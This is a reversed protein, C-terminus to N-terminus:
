PRTVRLRMFRKTVSSLSQTDDVKVTGPASGSHTYLSTWTGNLDSTAEVVYTVDAATGTFTYSLYNSGEVTQVQLILGASAATAPLNPNLGLAYKLLNAMGDNAASANDARNGTADTTGFHTMRWTDIGSAAVISATTQAYTTVAGDNATLRLTYAGAQNFNATTTAAAANGFAANGLGASKSWGLVLSSGAPNGDDIVSGSLPLLEGTNGAIATGASVVPGMNAPTAAALDQIETLDLARNYIRAEDITGFFNWADNSGIKLPATNNRPVSTPTITSFKDASGNVYIRLNNTAQSGDFVVCLHYWQGAAVTTAAVLTTGGSITVSITANGTGGRLEVRYSEKNFPGIRKTIIGAYASGGSPISDAKFWLSITMKGLGDLPNPNTSSDAVEVRQFGGSFTLGGGIRGAANWAPSEFFTGNTTSAVGSSDVATTGSTEDLALRLKLAGDAPGNVPISLVRVPIDRSSQDVGDNATLRLVYDGPSGFTAGTSLSTASTFTVTGQGSVKTWQLTLSGARAPLPTVTTSILIGSGTYICAPSATPSIVAIDPANTTEFVIYPRASGYANASGVTVTQQTATFFRLSMKKLSDNALTERVYSTVDFQLLTGPTNVGSDTLTPVGANYSTPRTNYTMSTTSVFALAPDYTWSGFAVTLLDFNDADVVTLAYPGNSPAGTGTLGALSVQTGNTFGHGACAVRTKGSGNNSVGTFPRSIGRDIWGDQADAILNAQVNAIVGAATGSTVYLHLTARVFSNNLALGSLDYRQFTEHQNAAINSIYGVEDTGYSSTSRAKDTYTTAEPYLVTASSSNVTLTFAQNATQNLQDTVQATFTFTGTVTPAGSLVGASSFTLGAPLAGSALSWAYQPVGGQADLSVSGPSNWNFAPLTTTSIAVATPAADLNVSQTAGLSANYFTGGGTTELRVARVMYVHSGTTVITDTYTTGTIPTATLRTFPASAHAARYVHYGIVGSDPSATWTLVPNGATKVVSLGTPPEFMFLRLAPDGMHNMYLSGHYDGNNQANFKYTYPGGDSGTTWGRNNISQKMMDGAELGMGMRHYIYRLGWINWTYSLTFSDESLSKLMINASNTIRTAEYWYGWHSQMGTWFVARGGVGSMPGSNGKFYFLYPGNQITYLQDADEGTRTRPLAANTIFEVNNMGVVGPMSQLQADRENAYLLRDVVRRGPRFDPSAVKYRHLKWFYTRLAETETQIGHSLDIRSFGLEVRGNPGVESIKRQDFQGDGPINNIASSGDNSGTDTWGMGIAGDTDAYFADTGYPAVSGHGDAGAGDSLGSRAVPVKGILALNKLEGPYANNVALVADRILLHYNNLASGATATAGSGGSAPALTLAENAGFTAPLVVSVGTVSGAPAILSGTATAGSTAGTITVRDNDRYGSGGAVVNVNRGVGSNDVTNVSVNLGGSNTQLGTLYLYGSDTYGSGGSTITISTIVGNTVNLVGQAATTGYNFGVVNGNVYGSGGGLVQVSQLPGGVTATFPGVGSGASAGSVAIAEGEIFGVESSTVEMSLIVGDSNVGLVAQATKGSTGGTLTVTDGEIYGSGTTYIGAQTLKGTGDLYDAIITGVGSGTTNGTMILREKEIFGADSSNITLWYVAGAPYNFITVQATKGSVAGTLTVDQGQTYGSGGTVAEPSRLTFQATNVRGILTAGTGTSTGGSVTLAENASFGTGGGANPISVSSVVGNTATIKGRATKGSANTLTIYDSNVYGSGGANVKTTLINGNGLASYNPARPVLIEHVTWGDAFLDAKYQAFEAPLTTLVDSAVVVAMRGKPQTGDVQIGCLIYGSPYISNTTTGATNVFRYEYLTGVSVTNDTWTGEGALSVGTAVAAGWSLADPSKRYISFTGPAYTKIRIQAPSAQVAAELPITQVTGDSATQLNAPTYARLTSVLISLCLLAAVARLYPHRSM